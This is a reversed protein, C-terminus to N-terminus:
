YNYQKVYNVLYYPDKGYKDYLIKADQARHGNKIKSIMTYNLGSSKAIDINKIGRDIMTFIDIYHSWIKVPTENSHTNSLTLMEKPLFNRYFDEEDISQYIGQLSIGGTDGTTIFLKARMRRDEEDMFNPKILGTEYAHITNESFTCWELNSVRNNLKDGDIHNVCPKSEPNDLFAEAVLKHFYKSYAKGDITLSFVRYSRYGRKKDFLVGGKIIKRKHIYSIVEGETNVAYRGELGVCWKENEQLM